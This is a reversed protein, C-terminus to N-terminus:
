KNRKCHEVSYGAETCSEIFDSDLKDVLAIIMGVILIIFLIILTNKVEQKLNYKKM